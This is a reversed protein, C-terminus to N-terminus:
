AFKYYSWKWDEPQTVLGAKVPNMLVYEVIRQLEQEDRVVHDYSEDQWFAGKRGLIQNAKWATYGKLSQMINGLTYYREPKELLPEFVVHVHNPMICYAILTYKRGDLYHMADAVVKAIDDRQLWRETQQERDLAADWKAFMKKQAQYAERHRKSPPLNMFAKELAEAEQLLSEIVALPLSNYLRFTVFM